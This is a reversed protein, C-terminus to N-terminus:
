GVAAEWRQRLDQLSQEFDQRLTDWNEPPALSGRGATDLETWVRQTEAWAENIARVEQDELDQPPNQIHNDWAQMAEAARMKYHQIPTPGEAPLSATEEKPDPIAQEPVERDRRMVEVGGPGAGPPYTIDSGQATDQQAQRVQDTLNLGESGSTQALAPSGALLLGTCLAVTRRM